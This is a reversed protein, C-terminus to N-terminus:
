NDGSTNSNVKEVTRASMYIGLVSGIFLLTASDLPALVGVSYGFAIAINFAEAVAFHVSTIIALSWCLAPRWGSKFFSTSVEETKNLDIQALLVQLQAKIEVIQEDQLKGVAGEIVGLIGGVSPNGVLGLLGRTITSTSNATASLVPGIIKELLEFIGPIIMLFNM